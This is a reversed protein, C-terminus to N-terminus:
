NTKKPKNLTSIIATILLLAVSIISIVAYYVTWGSNTFIHASILPAFGAAFGGAANMLCGLGGANIGNGVKLPLVSFVITIVGQYIVLYAVILTDSKFLNSSPTTIVGSIKFSVPITLFPSRTITIEELLVTGVEPVSVSLM